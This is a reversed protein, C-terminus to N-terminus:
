VRRVLTSASRCIPTSTRWKLRSALAGGILNSSGSDTVRVKRCMQRVIVEIHKDNIEVGQLRYVKQVENILYNQVDELGKIALIDQPYLVGERTIIDGKEVRDGADRPFAPHVPHLLESSRQM